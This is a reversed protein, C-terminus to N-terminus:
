AIEGTETFEYENADAMETLQEESTLYEYEKELSRYIWRMYDRLLESISKEDEATVANYSDNPVYVDIETSHEHSYQGRHAIRASYRYFNRRQIKQLETAIRILEADSNVTHEKVAQVSGKRYSYSGTFCAGDGQSWFGSFYIDKIEIGMLAGITKADEYVFDWWDHDTQGEALWELAREKARGELEQLKYVTRTETVTRM